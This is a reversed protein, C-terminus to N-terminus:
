GSNTLAHPFGRELRPADNAQPLYPVVRANNRLTFAALTIDAVTM